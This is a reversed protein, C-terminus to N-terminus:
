QSNIPSVSLALKNLCKNLQSNTAVWNITLKLHPSNFYHLSFILIQLLYTKYLAVGYELFTLKEWKIDLIPFFVCNFFIYLLVLSINAKTVTM